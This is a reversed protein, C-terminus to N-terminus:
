SGDTAAEPGAGAGRTRFRRKLLEAFPVESWSGSAAADLAPGHAPRSVLEERSAGTMLPAYSGPKLNGFALFVTRDRNGATGELFVSPDFRRMRFQHNILDVWFAADYCAQRPEHSVPIEALMGDGGAEARLRTLFGSFGREFHAVAAGDARDFIRGAPDAQMELYEAQVQSVPAPSPILTSELVERFSSRTAVGALSDWADDLADWVPSLALPLLAYSKRYPRRPFQAFVAFPFSRSKRDHSPRIVGAVLDPADPLGFLCRVRSTEEVGTEERGAEVWRRLARASPVTANEEWHEEYCPVKGFCGLSLYDDSM